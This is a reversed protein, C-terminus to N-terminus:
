ETHSQQQQTPPESRAPTGSASQESPPAHRQQWRDVVGAIVGKDLAALYPAVEARRFAAFVITPLPLPAEGTEATHAADAAPWRLLRDVTVALAAWAAKHPPYGFIGTSIGCFGISRLRYRRAMEMCATYASALERPKEGVPGVAHVVLKAPLRYGKTVRAHGTRCGDFCLCERRLLPGALDHIAGDVGGGGLCRENAANVLGDVALDTVAGEYLFLRNKLIAYARPPLDEPLPMPILARGCADPAMAVAAPVDPPVVFPHKVSCGGLCAHREAGGLCVAVADGGNTAPSVSPRCGGEARHKKRQQSPPPPGDAVTVLSAATAGDRWAEVPCRFAAESGGPVCADGTAANVDADPFPLRLQRHRFPPLKDVTFQSPAGPLSYNSVGDTLLPALVPEALWDSEDVPAAAASGRPGTSVVCDDDGSSLVEVTDADVDMPEPAAGGVKNSPSGTASSAMHQTPRETQSCGCDEVCLSLFTGVRGFGFVPLSM